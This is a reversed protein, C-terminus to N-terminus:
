CLIESYSQFLPKLRKLFEHNYGSEKEVLM